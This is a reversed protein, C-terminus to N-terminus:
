YQIDRGLKAHIIYVVSFSQISVAANMIQINIDTSKYSYSFSTMIMGTDFTLIYLYWLNNVVSKKLYM